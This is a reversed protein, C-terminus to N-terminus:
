SLILQATVNSPNSCVGVAETEVADYTFTENFEASIVKIEITYETSYGLDSFTHNINMAAPILLSDIETAGDFIMVEYATIDVSLNTFDVTVTNASSTIEVVPETFKIMRYAASPQTEEDGVSTVQFVYIRNDLLDEIDLETETAAMSPSYDTWTVESALRYQALLSEIGTTDTILWELHATAM